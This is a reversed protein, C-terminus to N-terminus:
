KTAAAAPGAVPLLDWGGQSEQFMTVGEPGSASSHRLKGPVMLYSGPGLVKETGGEPTYRFEGSLVM